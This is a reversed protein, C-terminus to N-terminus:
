ILPDAIRKVRQQYNWEHRFARWAARLAKIIATM